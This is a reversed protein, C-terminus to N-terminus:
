QHDDPQDHKAFCIYLADPFSLLAFLTPISLIVCHRTSQLGPVCNLVNNYCYPLLVTRDTIRAPISGAGEAKRCIPLGASQGFAGCSWKTFYQSQLTSHQQLFKIRRLDLFVLTSSKPGVLGTAFLMVGM